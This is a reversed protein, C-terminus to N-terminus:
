QEARKNALDWGEKADAKHHEAEAKADEIRKRDSLIRVALGALAALLGGGGVLDVTWDRSPAAQGLVAGLAPFAQKLGAVLLGAIEPAELKTQSTAETKAIQSSDRTIRLNIPLETMQMVDGVPIPFSFTGGIVLTEHLMTDTQAQKRTSTGCGYFWLLVFVAGLIIAVLKWADRPLRM